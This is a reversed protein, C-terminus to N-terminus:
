KIIFRIGAYVNIGTVPGWAMSADFHTHFPKWYETVPDMQRYNTLNEGGLYIDFNKFKRTVQALLNFWAPSSGPRQLSSPMKQTDPLRSPGNLQGTIDFKWKRSM